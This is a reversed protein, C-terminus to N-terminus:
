KAEPIEKDVIKASALCLPIGGGPHVSGGVFYLGKIKNLFNPHRLFSSFVSNSSNGYLAGKRSLTTKEIEAPSVVKEYEIYKEIDEELTNNIKKIINKRAQAVLEKWNQNINAPANIMVFWNESNEPADGKVHKSSIFIYVTPDEFIKKEEFLYRFEQKYNGSFLINHLELNPHTKKIGWYFIMASSSPELKRLRKGLPHKMMNRALHNVDSDSVILDSLIKKNEAVLATAKKNEVIIESVKTNFQFEVGKEKALNYLSQVISYMGECPFYAGLNNELHGIINLTAPAKYPNSGNYTAYRDFLQVLHPHSFIRSNEKHMSKHFKLKYSSLLSKLVSFKLYNKFRHLSNFIFIDATIKYLVTAAKLYSRINKPNEGLKKRCEEEFRVPDAFATLSEGSSYFYKCLIDLKDYQLRTEVGKNNLDFLEDILEPLTFLSPGTDFRYGKYRIEALKGGPQNNKEYVIVKHGKDAIRCAAALGAIGSGIISVKM